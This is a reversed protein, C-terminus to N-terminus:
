FGSTVFDKAVVVYIVNPSLGHNCGKGVLLQAFRLRLSLRVVEYTVDVSHCAANHFYISQFPFDRLCLFFETTFIRLFKLALKVLPYGDCLFQFVSKWTNETFETFFRSLIFIQLLGDVNQITSVLNPLFFYFTQNSLHAM